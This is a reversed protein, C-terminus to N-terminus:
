RRAPANDSEVRFNREVTDNGKRPQKAEGETLIWASLLMGTSAELIYNVRFRQGLVTHLFVLSNQPSFLRMGPAMRITQGNLQAEVTSNVVLTGRLAADPFNRVIGLSPPVQQAHAPLSAAALTCLALSASAFFARAAPHYPLCRNM